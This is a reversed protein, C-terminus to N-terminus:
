EYVHFQIWPQPDPDAYIRIQSPFIKLNFWFFHLSIPLLQLNIWIKLTFKCLSWQKVSKHKKWSFFFEEYPLKYCIQKPQIRIRMSFYQQIRIRLLHIWIWLGACSMRFLYVHCLTIGVPRWFSIWPEWGAWVFLLLIRNECVVLFILCFPLLFIKEFSLKFCLLM